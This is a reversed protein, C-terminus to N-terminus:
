SDLSRKYATSASSPNFLPAWGSSTAPYYSQKGDCNCCAPGYQDPENFGMVDGETDNLWGLSDPFATGWVMPVFTGALAKATSPTLGAQDLIQDTNWNWWFSLKGTGVATEAAGPNTGFVASAVGCQLAAADEAAASTLAAAALLLVAGCRLFRSAMILM